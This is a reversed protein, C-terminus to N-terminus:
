NKIQKIIEDLYAEEINNLHLELKRLLLLPLVFEEM